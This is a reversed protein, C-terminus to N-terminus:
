ISAITAWWLTIATRSRCCATTVCDPPDAGSWLFGGPTIMQRFPARAIVDELASLLATEEPVAFQRLVTAGPGLPEQQLEVDALSDFLNM